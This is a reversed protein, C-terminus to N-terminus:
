EGKYKEELSGVRVSLNDLRESHKKLDERFSEAVNNIANTLSSFNDKIEKKVRGSHLWAAMTFFFGAQTMQSSFVDNAVNIIQDYKIEAGYSSSLLFTITAAIGGSSLAIAATKKRNQPAKKDM